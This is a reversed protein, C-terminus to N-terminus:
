AVSHTLAQMDAECQPCLGHSLQPLVDVELFGTRAVYDEVNVWTDAEDRVRKCWSCMTLLEDSRPAEHDLLHQIERPEERLLRSRFRVVGPAAPEVLMEMHRRRGPSDCRHTFRVPEGTRLIREMLAEYIHRTEPGAIFDGLRRGLVAQVTLDPAANLSAFEDWNGHIELLVSGPGVLYEITDSM